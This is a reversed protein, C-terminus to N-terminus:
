RKMHDYAEPNVTFQWRGGHLVQIVANADDESVRASAEKTLAATHPTAVFNSLKFLPSTVDMPESAMVDVGAATLTGDTLAKYLAEENIVGGRACNILYAGKKVAAFEKSGMMGKTDKTLPMHLTILDAQGLAKYLDGEFEYGAKEVDEKTLFPDYAVVRMGNGRLLAAAVRGIRGFGLVVATHGKLETPQLAAYRIGFNGKKLENTFTPLRKTICYALAVVQEAVSRTNAGPTVCVAIGLKTAADVDILDVGVGYHAIVKLRPLQRLLEGPLKTPIRHIIGDAERLLDMYDAPNDSNAVTVKIDKQAALVKMGRDGIKRTIDVNFM